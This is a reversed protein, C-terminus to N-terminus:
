DNRPPRRALFDRLRRVGEELNAISTTYAFRLYREPLNHGFDAGPTLAVGAKELIEAAFDYSGSSFRRCDAYVYFAGGPTVPVDFGLERLAAILYDRRAAFERRRTELIAITEPQFAALAAYQAPTSAALFLNQALKDAHSAYPEPVVLWGLRWGTMGFYKSFSNVVFVRDSLALATAAPQAEYVLGHYIEDVIMCGRQGTVVELIDRMLAPAILTGTPNAPSALLLAATRESWAAAVQQATPQFGTEASVNLGVAEGETMRVLHRNCPYGPDTVLVRDGPNILMALVLQLAGSAGPTVVIRAPSVDVAYRERYFRSIAERLEPLGLAPTYHTHGARLARIGAEVIAPATPFDPEGIEMHIISRGAAEMARAQALINMVHFPQIDQTRHSLRLPTDNM